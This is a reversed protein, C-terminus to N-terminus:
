VLSCFRTVIEMTVLFSKRRKKINVICSRSCNMILTGIISGAQRKVNCDVKNERELCNQNLEKM